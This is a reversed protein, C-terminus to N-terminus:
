KRRQKNHCPRCLSQLNDWDMAFEPHDRLEKIHHVQDAVTVRGEAECTACLPHAQKFAASLNRWPRSNYFAELDRRGPANRYNRRDRAPSCLRPACHSPIRQPM